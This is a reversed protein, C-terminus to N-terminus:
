ETRLANIPNTNAVSRCKVSVTIMAICISGIATIVFPVVNVDIHYAFTQLWQHMVLWAVPSAVIFAILFFALWVYNLAM